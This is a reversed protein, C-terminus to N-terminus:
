PTGNRDAVTVVVAEPRSADAGTLGIEMVDFTRGPSGVWEFVRVPLEAWTADYEIARDLADRLAGLTVARGQHEWLEPASAWDDSWAGYNTV